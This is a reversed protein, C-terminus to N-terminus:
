CSDPATLRLNQTNVRCRFPGWVFAAELHWMNDEEAFQPTDVFRDALHLDAGRARYQFLADLDVTAFSQQGIRM